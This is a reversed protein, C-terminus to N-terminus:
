RSVGAREFVFRMRTKDARFTRFIGSTDICHRRGCNDIILLFRRGNDRWCGLSNEAFNQFRFESSVGLFRRFGSASARPVNQRLQRGSMHGCETRPVCYTISGKPEHSYHPLKSTIVYRNSTSKALIRYTETNYITEFHTM